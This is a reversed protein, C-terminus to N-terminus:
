QRLCSEVADELERVNFPKRMTVLDDRNKLRELSEYFGSMAIIPLDSDVNRVRDIFEGGCIGPMELSTIILNIYRRWKLYTEIAEFGDFAALIRYRTGLLERLLGVLDKDHDVVLVTRHLGDVPFHEETEKRLFKFRGDEQGTPVFEFRQSLSGGFKWGAPTVLQMSTGRMHVGWGIRPGDFLWCASVKGEDGCGLRAFELWDCKTTLGRQQDAIALDFAKGHDLFRLGNRELHEVFAEVDAPNLFGVRAIDDDACLTSNPVDAVFTQWGGHYKTVIADRRVIVSIAEVLVAM